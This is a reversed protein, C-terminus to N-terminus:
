WGFLDSSPVFTLLWSKGFHHAMLFAGSFLQMEKSPPCTQRQQPSGVHSGLLLRCRLMRLARPKLDASASPLCEVRLWPAQLVVAKWKRWGPWSRLSSPSAEAMSTPTSWASSKGVVALNFFFQFSVCISLFYFLFHGPNSSILFFFLDRFRFNFTGYLILAENPQTRFWAQTGKLGPKPISSHERIDPLTGSVIPLRSGQGSLRQLPATHSNEFCLHNRLM